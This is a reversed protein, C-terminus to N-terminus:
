RYPLWRNLEQRKKVQEQRWQRWSSSAQSVHEILERDIKERYEAVPKTYLRGNQDFQYGGWMHQSIPDLLISQVYRVRGIAHHLDTYGLTVIDLSDIYNNIKNRLIAAQAKQQDNLLWYVNPGEYLWAESLCAPYDCNALAYQANIAGLSHGYIYYHATLDQQMLHNLLGAASKLQSPIEGVRHEVILRGIPLNTALWENSWTTPNGHRLGSSGRFLVTIENHDQHHNVIITGRLGDQKYFARKVRGIRKGNSLRVHDGVGLPQYELGALEVRQQDTLQANVDM